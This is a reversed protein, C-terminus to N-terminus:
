NSVQTATFSVTKTTGDAKMFEIAWESGNRLAALANLTLTKKDASLVANSNPQSDGSQQEIIWTVPNNSANKFTLKHVITYENTGSGLTLALVTKNADIHTSATNPLYDGTAVSTVKVTPEANANTPTPTTGDGAPLGGKTIKWTVDVKFSTKGKAYGDWASHENIAGILNYTASPYQEPDTIIRTYVYDGVEPNTQGEKMQWDKRFAAGEVPNTVTDSGLHSIVGSASAKGESDVAKTDVAAAPDSDGDGDQAETPASFTLTNSAAQAINNAPDAELGTLTITAFVTADNADSVTIVNGALNVSCGTFGSGSATIDSGTGSYSLTISAAEFMDADAGEGYEVTAGTLLGGDGGVTVTSPMPTAEDESGESPNALGTSQLALYVQAGDGGESGEDVLADQSDVFTVFSADGKTVTVDLEVGIDVLSMNIIKRSNSSNSYLAPSGEVAEVAPIEEGTDPDTGAAQGEVATVGDKNKFFLKADENSFRVKEVAAVAEVGPVAPTIEEGTDPDTVAPTGEVAPTGPLNGFRKYATDKLLHHPDLIMNYDNTVEVPLVVAVTDEPLPGETSGTGSAGGSSANTGSNGGSLDSAGAFAACSLVMAGTLVLALLKKMRKM